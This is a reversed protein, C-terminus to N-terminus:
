DVAKRFEITDGWSSLHIGVQRVMQKSRNGEDWGKHWAKSAEASAKAWTQSRKDAWPSGSYVWPGGPHYDWKDPWFFGSKFGQNYSEEVTPIITGSAFTREELTFEM